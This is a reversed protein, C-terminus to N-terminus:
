IFTLNFSTLSSSFNTYIDVAVVQSDSLVGCFLIKSFKERNKLIVLHDQYNLRFEFEVDTGSNKILFRPRIQVKAWFM